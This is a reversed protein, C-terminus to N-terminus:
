VMGGPDGGSGGCLFIIILKIIALTFSIAVLGFVVYKVEPPGKPVNDNYLMIIHRWILDFDEKSIKGTDLLM